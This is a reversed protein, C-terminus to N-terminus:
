ERLVADDGCDGVDDLLVAFQKFEFEHVKGGPQCRSSGRIPFQASKM